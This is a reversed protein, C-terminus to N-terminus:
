LSDLSSEQWQLVAQFYQFDYSICWHGIDMKRLILLCHIFLQKTQYNRRLTLPLIFDIKKVKTNSLELKPLDLLLRGIFCISRKSHTLVHDFKFSVLRFCGQGAPFRAICKKFDNWRNQFDELYKRGAFVIWDSLPM